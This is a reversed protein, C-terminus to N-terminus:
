LKSSLSFDSIVKLSEETNSIQRQFADVIDSYLNTKFEKFFDRKFKKEGVAEKGM